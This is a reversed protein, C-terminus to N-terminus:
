TQLCNIVFNVVSRQDRLKSLMDKLDEESIVFRARDGIGGFGGFTSLEKDLKVVVQSCQKVSSEFSEMVGQNRAFLAPKEQLLNQISILMTATTQCETSISELTNRANDFSGYLSKIKKAISFCSSALEGAQKLISEAKPM